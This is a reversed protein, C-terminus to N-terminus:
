KDSGEIRVQDRDIEGGSLKAPVGDDCVVLGAVGEGSSWERDAVLHDDTHGATFVADPTKDIGVLDRRAAAEPAPPRDGARPLGAVLGPVPVAPLGAAAGGPNGARVVRIEIKDVPAGAIGPGVVVAVVASAVIEVGAGDHSEVRVEAAQAPVKLERRVVHVVPVGRM